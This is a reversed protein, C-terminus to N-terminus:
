RRWRRRRIGDPRVTMARYPSGKRASGGSPPLGGLYLGAARPNRACAPCPTRACRSATPHPVPRLTAPACRKCVSFTIIRGVSLRSTGDASFVQPMRRALMAAHLVIHPVGVFVFQQFSFATNRKFIDHKMDTSSILSVNEFMRILLSIRSLLDGNNDNLTVGRDRAM